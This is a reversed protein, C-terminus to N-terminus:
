VPVVAKSRDFAHRSVRAFRILQSIYVGYSARRLVAGDLYPFNVIESDFDDCSIFGDLMSLHLDSFCPTVLNIASGLASKSPSILDQALMKQIEQTAAKRKVPPIRRPAQKIQSSDGIFISHEVLNTRCIDRKILNSSEPIADYKEPYFISLTAGTDM